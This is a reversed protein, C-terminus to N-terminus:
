NPREVIRKSQPDHPKCRVLRRGPMGVLSTVEKALRGSPRYRDQQGVGASAADRVAAAVDWRSSRGRDAVAGHGRHHAAVMVLVPLSAVRGDGVAVKGAPVARM